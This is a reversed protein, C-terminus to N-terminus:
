LIELRGWFNDEWRGERQTSFRYWFLMESTPGFVNSFRGEKVDKSRPLFRRESASCSPIERLKAGVRRFNTKDCFLRSEGGGKVSGRNCCSQSLLLLIEEMSAQPVSELAYM